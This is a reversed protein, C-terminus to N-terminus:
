ATGTGPPSPLAPPAPTGGDAPPAPPVLGMLLWLQSAEDYAARHAPDAALWAALQRHVPSGPSAEHVAVIWGLAAQWVPGNRRPDNNGSDRM